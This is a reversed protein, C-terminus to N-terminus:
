IQAAACNAKRIKVFFVPVFTIV